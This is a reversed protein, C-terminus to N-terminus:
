FSCFILNIPVPVQQCILKRSFQFNIKREHVTSTLRQKSCLLNKGQKNGCPHGATLNNKKTCYIVAANKEDLPLAVASQCSSLYFPMRAQEMVLKKCPEPQCYTASFISQKNDKKCEISSHDIYLIISIHCSWQSVLNQCLNPIHQADYMEPNLNNQFLCNRANHSKKPSFYIINLIQDIARRVTSINHM